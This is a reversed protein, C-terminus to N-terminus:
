PSVPQRAARVVSVGRRAANRESARVFADPIISKSGCRCNIATGPLQWEHDVESWLGKATDFRRRERGWRVHEPRPVRGAHSHIWLAEEIGLDQRRASEMVAKAKASQDRAILAARRYTVGYRRRIDRSLERQAGGATTAKTVLAEVARHFRRPISRILAVNEAVVARHAEVMRASPAFAVTFGARRLLRRFESDLHRRSRDAFLTAVDRAMRDFRAEWRVGWEAFARRLEVDPAADMVGGVASLGARGPLSAGSGVAAPPSGYEAVLRLADVAMARAMRQM